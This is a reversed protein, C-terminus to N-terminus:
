NSQQEELMKKRLHPPVYRNAPATSTSANKTPAISSPPLNTTPAKTSMSTSTAATSTDDEIKMTKLGESISAGAPVSKGKTEAPRTATEKEEVKEKVKESFDGRLLKKQEGQLGMQKRMGLKFSAIDGQYKSITKNDCIWIEKAVQSILRMDHSVLVLGGEYENVAKALADISEM